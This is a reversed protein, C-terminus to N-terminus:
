WLVCSLVQFVEAFCTHCQRSNQVAIEVSTSICVINCYSPSVMAKMYIRNCHVPINTMVTMLLGSLMLIQLSAM